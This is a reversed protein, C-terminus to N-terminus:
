VAASGMLTQAFFRSQRLQHVKELEGAHAEEERTLSKEEEVIGLATCFSKALRKSWAEMDSPLASIEGLSIAHQRLARLYAARRFPELNLVDVLSEHRSSLPISGHQLFATRNRRQASGIIKRGDHTLESRSTSAFCPLGPGAGKRADELPAGTALRPGFDRLAEAWAEGIRAHSQALTKCWSGTDRSASLSYTIEEAHLVARGGTPRMVFDWGREALAEANMEVKPDQFYGLSVCFPEWGYIRVTPPAEGKEVAQFIAGDVAMNRAGSNRGELILRWVRANM